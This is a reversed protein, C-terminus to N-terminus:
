FEGIKDNNTTYLMIEPQVVGSVVKLSIVSSDIVVGPVVSRIEFQM